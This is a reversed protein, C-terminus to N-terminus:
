ILHTTLGVGRGSWGRSLGPLRQIPPQTPGLAPRSPYPFDRSWRFEIGPGDMGYHTTIGVSGYRGLINRLAALLIQQWTCILCSDATRCRISLVIFWVFSYSVNCREKQVNSRGAVLSRYWAFRCQDFSHGEPMRTEAPVRFILMRNCITTQRM